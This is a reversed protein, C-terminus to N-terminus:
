QIVKLYVKQQEVKVQHVNICYEGPDSLCSGNELSFTKKHYPCAVKPEGKDTGIMGRGLIMQKKHPCENDTAYWEGRTTFNFVAIQKDGVKVTAGANSPFDSVSGCLIWDEDIMKITNEENKYKKDVVM